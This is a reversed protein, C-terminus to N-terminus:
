AVLLFGHAFRVFWRCLFYCLLSVGEDPAKKFIGCSGEVKKCDIDALPETVIACKCIACQCRACESGMCICVLTIRAFPQLLLCHCANYFYLIFRQIGTLAAESQRQTM